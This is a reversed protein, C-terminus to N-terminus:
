VPPSTKPALRLLSISATPISPAVHLAAPAELIHPLSPRVQQPLQGFQCYHAFVCGEHAPTGQGPASRAVDSDPAAALAAGGVAQTDEVAGHEACFRHGEETAHVVSLVPTAGWLLVVLFASVRRTAPSSRSRGHRTM